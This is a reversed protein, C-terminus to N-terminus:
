AASVDCELKFKMKFWGISWSGKKSVHSLKFELISLHNCGNNENKYRHVHLIVDVYIMHNYWCLEYRAWIVSKWRYARQKNTKENKTYVDINEENVAYM